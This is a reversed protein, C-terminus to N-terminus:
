DTGYIINYIFSLKINNYPIGPIELKYVDYKVFLRKNNNTKRSRLIVTRITYVVIM